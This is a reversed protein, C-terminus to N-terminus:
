PFHLFLPTLIHLGRINSYHSFWFVFILCCLPLFDLCLILKFQSNVLFFLLFTIGSCSFITKKKSLPLKLRITPHYLEILSTSLIVWSSWFWLEELVGSGFISDFRFFYPFIGWPLSSFKDGHRLRVYKSIYENHM